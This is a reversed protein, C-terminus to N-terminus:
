RVCYTLNVPLLTARDAYFHGQVFVTVRPYTFDSITVDVGARSAKVGAQDEAARRPATCPRVCASDIAFLIKLSIHLRNFSSCAVRILM